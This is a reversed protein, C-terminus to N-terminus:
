SKPAQEDHIPTMSQVIREVVKAREGQEVKELLREAALARAFEVPQLFYAGLQESSSAQAKMFTSGIYASMGAGAVGVVAAAIAGTGSKTLGAFAAVAILFAFGVYAAIQASRFSNRAQQTAIEHYVDIRKQTIAWLSDFDTGAAALQSEEKQLTSVLGLRVKDQVATRLSRNYYALVFLTIYPIFLISFSM